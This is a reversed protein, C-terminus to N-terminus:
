KGLGARLWEFFGAKIAAWAAFFAVLWIMSNRIGRLLYAAGEAAKWVRAVEKLAAAEEATFIVVDKDDLMKVIKELAKDAESKAKEDM